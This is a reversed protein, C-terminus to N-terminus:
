HGCAPLHPRDVSGISLVASPPGKFMPFLFLGGFPPIAPHPATANLGWHFESRCIFLSAHRRMGLTRWMTFWSARHGTRAESSSTALMSGAVPPNTLQSKLTVKISPSLVDIALYLRSHHLGAAFTMNESSPYAARLRPLIGTRSPRIRHRRRCTM